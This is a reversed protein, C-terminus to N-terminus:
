FHIRRFNTRDEEEEEEEDTVSRGSTLSATASPAAGGGSFVYLQRPQQRRQPVVVRRFRTVDGNSVRAAGVGVDPEVQASPRATAVHVVGSPPRKEPEISSSTKPRNPAHHYTKRTLGSPENQEFLMSSIPADNDARRVVNGRHYAEHIHGTIRM